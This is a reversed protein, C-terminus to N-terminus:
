PSSHRRAVTAGDVRPPCGDIARALAAWAPKRAMREDLPLGRSPLRDARPHFRTLWSYRDSLGWTLVGVVRPEDLVVTLVREYEDAVAADRAVPDAPLAHDTVDLETVMLELGMAAVEALFIRFDRAYFREEGARLHMQLGLGHVPVGRSVLQELLALVHRRRTREDRSGYELRHDNYYLRAAPDAAAAARFALELYEPGLARMWATDRYGRPHGDAPAIAENVVDWSHMRGAFHGAIRSVHEVLLREARRRDLRAPLWGPLAEHWLLTHGRMAMRNRRTFGHLWEADALAFETERPRLWNWKLEWEPVLMGCEEAFHRAHVADPELASRRGAAGFWLGRRAARARLPEAQEIGDTRERWRAVRRRRMLGPVVLAAPGAVAASAAALM